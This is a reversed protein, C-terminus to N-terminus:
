WAAGCGAARVSNGDPCRPRAYRLPSPSGFAGARHHGRSLGRGPSPSTPSGVPRPCRSSTSPTRWRRSATGSARAEASCSRCWWSTCTTSSVQPSLDAARGDRRRRPTRRPRRQGGRARGRAGRRPIRRPLPLDDRGGDRAPAAPPPDPRLGAHPLAAGRGVLGALRPPGAVPRVSSTPAWSRPVSGGRSPGRVRLRGRARGSPGLLRDRVDVRAAASRRSRVAVRPAPARRLRLRRPLDLLQPGPRTARTAGEPPLPGPDAADGRPPLGGPLPRLPQHRARGVRAAVGLRRRWSRLRRPPPAPRPCSGARPRLQHDAGARGAPM